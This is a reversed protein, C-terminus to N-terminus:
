LNMRFRAAGIPIETDSDIFKVSFWYVPGNGGTPRKLNKINIELNTNPAVTEPFAILITKDNVSVNTNIKQGKNGIIEIENNESVNVVNPLQIILHSVAKSKQPIHIRFTHRVREWHTPPFDSNGDIHPFSANDDHAIAYNTPILLATTLTFIAAYILSKKM